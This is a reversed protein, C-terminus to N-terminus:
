NNPDSGTINVPDSGMVYERYIKAKDKSYFYDLIKYTDVLEDAMNYFLIKCSSWMYKEPLEVINSAVPNLNIYKSCELLYVDDTIELSKYRGRFLAGDRGYKTNFYRTYGENIKKMIRWIEVDNTGILLHYHNPMLCYSYIEFNMKEKCELVLNYFYIYDYNDLYIKCHNIGRNMVHMIEGPYWERKKRAIIIGGIEFNIIM